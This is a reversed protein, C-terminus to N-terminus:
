EWSKWCTPAAASARFPVTGTSPWGCGRAAAVFAAVTSINFSGLGDGGTGCTDLLAGIGQGAEVKAAAARMARAFGTLEEATEGKMRLAVLFAAIQPTTAAGELILSMAREAGAADLNERDSVRHLFPLFLM